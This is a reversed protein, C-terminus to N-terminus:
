SWRAALAEDAMPVNDPRSKREPPIVGGFPSTPPRLALASALMMIMLGVPLFGYYFVEMLGVLLATNAVLGLHDHRRFSRVFATFFWGMFFLMGPIGHAHLVIWFQGHTGVPPINPNDSPRPAGMGFVPSEQVSALTQSYVEVRADNTGTAATRETIDRQWPSQLFAGTGMVVLVVLTMLVKLNGLLLYRFTIYAAALGIGLFMGRNLTAAAPILSLPLAALLIWFRREGRSEILYVIVFPLLLSYANGWNNTYLFPASPRPDVDFFGDPNYQAFRRIAMESVLENSLLRTPLVYSLPTRVVATPALMGLFGGVVTFSWLLTLLGTVRRDTLRGRANYVYLFLATAALYTLHRYSFGLLRGLTDVQSVSLTMWVVFALWIGFGRPARVPRLQALHLVMITGFLIWAFDVFGILWWIPYGGLLATVPWSALQGPASQSDSEDGSGDDVIRHQTTAINAM